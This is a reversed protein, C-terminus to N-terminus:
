VRNYVSHGPLGKRATMMSRHVLQVECIHKNPDSKVYFNIMCDRWGGASPSRIFRDKVRTVVIDQSQGLRKVLKAIDGMTSCQLMGRVIDCVKNANGGHDKYHIALWGDWEGWRKLLSKEVIRGMKKLAAPISVEVNGMGKAFGAILTDYTPKILGAHQFVECPDTATQNVEWEPVTLAKVAADYEDVGGKDNNATMKWVNEYMEWVNGYM